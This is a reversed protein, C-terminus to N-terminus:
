LSDMHEQKLRLQGGPDVICLPRCVRGSDSAINVCRHIPHLQISVFERVQNPNPTPSPAPNPNPNPHLQISVFERVHGARRLQRM